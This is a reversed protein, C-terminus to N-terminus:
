CDFYCKLASLLSVAQVREIGSHSKTLRIVDEKLQADSIIDVYKDYTEFFSSLEKNTNIYYGIPNMDHLTLGARAPIVKNLLKSPLSEIRIKRGHVTIFGYKRTIKCGIKEWVYDAAKPYKKLIWKKYIRQGYRFEVPISLALQLFDLNYFPSFAETFLYEALNGNNTGSFGRHYFKAIEQNVYDTHRLDSIKELYARSYAGDGWQYRADRNKSSYWTGLIVDGLQGSHIMGYEDFNLKSYMSYAHSLGYYLVNGGTLRTIDELNYLWLGNDLSKFIWEHKLDSAIKKPITEDLYDTQSFTFNLQDTYGMDHAVWCTMRSDLGASLAVLHKYGYEKDKEFQQAVAKRFGEDIREIWDAESLILDPTNDLLFYRMEEVKDGEVRLYCGPKVKKIEECLTRDDIMYGYSLLLYSNEISLNNKSLKKLRFRYVDDMMSSLFFSNGVRTYYLFKSGIQDSFIIVKKERKSYLAGSFSGRLESFFQDGNEEYMAVVTDKWSERGYKKILSMRNLVLGDLLVSYFADEEFLKDGEFKNVAHNEWSFDVIVEQNYEITLNFGLEKM